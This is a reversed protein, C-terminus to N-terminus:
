YSTIFINSISSFIIIGFLNYVKTTFIVSFSTAYVYPQKLNKINSKEKKTKWYM